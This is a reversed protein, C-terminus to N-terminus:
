QRGGGPRGAARALLRDVARVLEGSELPKQLYEDVGADFGRVRDLHESRSTVMVIPVDRYRPHARLARTLEYGDLVPMMVDTSVLDFGREDREATALAEGGDRSVVVECGSAELARRLGERVVDSDEAVLVRPRRAVGLADDLLRPAIASPGLPRARSESSLGRQVVQVVDLVLAVRDGVLTAGAACPIVDILEGLTKMVIERKEVLRDVVLGYVEGAAEVLVVAVDDSGGGLAGGTTGAGGDLELTAAVDILPIQVAPADGDSTPLLLLERDGVRHLEDPAVALTRVVADLPIALDEGAVRVLLVQTIALTLPLRLTFTTGAGPRSSLEVSGSLRTITDRVVDMGVGRGSVDTVRAATSFGPRFILDLLARPEMQALEEDTALGKELAKRRLREPDIGAGDDSLEVIIQNGRHRASLRLCGEEPKGAAAREAPREIGHDLANRVLHLLPDDLQELLVKDLETEAGEIELRARKGLQHALERVTRHHKTFIRGIPLMRLKMVQERLHGGTHDLEDAADELDASLETAIRVFRDVEEVLPAGGRRGARTAGGSGTSTGGDGARGEGRGTRSRRLTGDLERVLAGLSAVRTQLRAKGLVLEGVLNLLSDLKDFDVRVTRQGEGGRGSGGGGPASETPAGGATAKAGGDLPEDLAAAAEPARLRAFLVDIPTTIRAPGGAVATAGVEDLITRLGDLAALLADIAARDARRSGDRMQGVLDEAAHALRNMRRLGVFGSSGKITHLDRFIERVLEVDDPQQELRLLKGALADVREHVEDFFPGIMDADVQPVWSADDDDDPRSAPAAPATTSPADAAREAPAPPPATAVPRDGAGGAGGDLLAALAEFRAPDDIRAGSADPHRLARVADDLAGAIAALAERAAAFGREADHATSAHAIRSLTAEARAMAAGVRRDIGFLAAGARADFLAGAALLLEGRGPATPSAALRALLTAAVDLEDLLAAWRREAGAGDSATM